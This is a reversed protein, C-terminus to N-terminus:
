APSIEGTALFLLEEDSLPPWALVWHARHVLHRPVFLDSTASFDIAPAPVVITPVGDSNLRGAVIHAELPDHFSMFREWEVARGSPLEPWPDNAAALPDVGLLNEHRQMEIIAAEMEVEMEVVLDVAAPM